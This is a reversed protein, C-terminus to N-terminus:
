YLDKDPKFPKFPKHTVWDWDLTYVAGEGNCAKCYKLIDVSNRGTGICKPCRIIAEM